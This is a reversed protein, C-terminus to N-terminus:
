QALILTNYAHPIPTLHTHLHIYRPICLPPFFFGPTRNSESENRHSVTGNIRTTPKYGSGGLSGGLEAEWLATIVMM